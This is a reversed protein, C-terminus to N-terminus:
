TNIFDHINNAINILMQASQKSDLDDSCYSKETLSLSLIYIIQNNKRVFTLYLYNISIPPLKKIARRKNTEQWAKVKIRKFFETAWIPHEKDIFLTHNLPVQNFFGVTLDDISQPNYYLSNSVASDIIGITEDFSIVDKFYIIHKDANYELWAGGSWVGCNGIIERLQLRIQNEFSTPLAEIKEFQKDIYHKIKEKVHFGTIFALVSFVVIKFAFHELAQLIVRKGIKFFM